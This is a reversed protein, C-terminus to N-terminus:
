ARRRHLWDPVRTGSDRAAQMYASNVYGDYTQPECAYCREDVTGIACYAPDDSHM